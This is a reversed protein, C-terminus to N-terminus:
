WRPPPYGHRLWVQRSTSTSTAWPDRDHWCPRGVSRGKKFSDLLSTRGAALAPATTSGVLRVLLRAVRAGPFGPGMGPSPDAPSGSCGDWGSRPCRSRRPPVHRPLLPTLANGRRRLVLAGSFFIVAVTFYRAVIVVWAAARYLRPPKKRSRRHRRHLPPRRHRQPSPTEIDKFIARGAVVTFPQPQWVHWPLQAQPCQVAPQRNRLTAPTVSSSPVPRARRGPGTAGSRAWRASEGPRLMMAPAPPAAPPLQRSRAHKGRIYGTFFIVAVIFVTGTACVWAAAKFVKLDPHPPPTPTESTESM